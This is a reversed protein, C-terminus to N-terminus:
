SQKLCLYCASCFVLQEAVLFLSGKLPQCNLLSGALRFSSFWFVRLLQFLVRLVCLGALATAFAALKM